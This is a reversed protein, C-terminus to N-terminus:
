VDQHLVTLDWGERPTSMLPAVTDRWEKYHDTEKHLLAAESSTYMEYLMYEGPNKEDKLVDYRVVGPEGLSGIRNKLTAQEFQEYNGPVVHVKVARVIM